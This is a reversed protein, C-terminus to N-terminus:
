HGTRVVCVLLAWLCGAGQRFKCASAMTGHLPRHGLDCQLCSSAGLPATCGSLVQQQPCLPSEAAPFSPGTGPSGPSAHVGWSLGHPESPQLSRWGMQSDTQLLIGPLVQGFMRLALLDLPPRSAM